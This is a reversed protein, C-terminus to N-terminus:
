RSWALPGGTVRSADDFEYDQAQLVSNSSNKLDIDTVRYRDDYGYLESQGSDFTKRELRGLTDYAFTTTEGYRNDITHLRGYADYDYDTDGLGDETIQERQHDRIRM